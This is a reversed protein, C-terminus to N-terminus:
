GENDAWDWAAWALEEAEAGGSAFAILSRDHAPDYYAASTLSGRSGPHGYLVVGRDKDSERWIGLGDDGSRSPLMQELAAESLLEGGFLGRFFADLDHLSTVFTLGETGVTRELRECSDPSVSQPDEWAFAAPGDQSEWWYTSGMELPDLIHKRAFTGVDQSVQGVLDGLLLYNTNSYDASDTPTTAEGALSRMEELTEETPCSSLQGQMDPIGSRHSMVDRVSVKDSVPFDVYDSIPADLDVLGEDVLQLVATAVMMKSISAGEWAQDVSVPNGDGDEGAAAMTEGGGEFVGLFVATAGETVSDIALAEIGNAPEPPSAEAHATSQPAASITSSPTPPSSCAAVTIAVAVLGATNGSMSM